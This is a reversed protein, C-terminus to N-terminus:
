AADAAADLPRVKMITVEAGLAGMAKALVNFHPTALHADFAAPTDWREDTTFRGPKELDRNVVYHQCPAEKRSAVMCRALEAEATHAHEPAVTVIAVVYTVESMSDDEQFYEDVSVLAKRLAMGEPNSVM